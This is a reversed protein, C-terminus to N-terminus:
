EEKLACAFKQYLTETNVRKGVPYRSMVRRVLYEGTVTKYVVVKASTTFFLMSGPQLEDLTQEFEEKSHSIKMTELHVKHLM